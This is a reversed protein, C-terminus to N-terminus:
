KAQLIRVDGNFGDFELMPGGKGIRAGEFENKYIFRGNRTATNVPAPLADVPFDTYVGGNFSKFRLDASLNRQFTVEITGNLSKFSSTRMPNAAFRVEVPGNITHARGSGTIGSMAIGGNINSVDFDGEVEEVRIGGDSITRLHVQTERPVRIEFDFIVEYGPDSWGSRSSSRTSRQHGPQDVYISITDSKDSIDLKVRDKAAGMDDQSRARITKNVVMEVNRGNYGTVHIAGQVSDVELVKPSNGQSFELTRRITEREEIGFRQQGNAPYASLGLVLFAALYTAKKM